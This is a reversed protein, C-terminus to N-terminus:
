YGIAFWGIEFTWTQGSGVCDRGTITVKSKDTNGKCLVGNVVINEVGTASNTTINRTANAMVFFCKNPFTIPYSIERTIAGGSPIDLSTVGWQMIIGSPLKLYSNQQKTGNGTVMNWVNKEADSILRHTSDQTYSALKNKDIWGTWTGNNLTNEYTTNRNYSRAIIKKYTASHVDIDYYAWENNNGFPNNTCGVGAYKGSKTIALVDQGSIRIRDYLCEQSNYKFSFANRGEWLAIDQLYFNTAGSSVICFGKDWNNINTDFTIVVDEWTNETKITYTKMQANSLAVKIVTGKIGYIRFSATYANKFDKVTSARNYIIYQKIGAEGTTSTIRVSKGSYASDSAATIATTNSNYVNWPFGSGINGSLFGSDLLLNEGSYERVKLDEVDAYLQSSTPYKKATDEINKITQQGKINASNIADVMSNVNTSVQKGDVVSQKIKIDLPFSTTQKNANYLKNTNITIQMHATGASNTCNRPLYIMAGSKSMTKGISSNGTVTGNANAYNVIITDEGDVLNLPQGNSYLKINFCVDDAQNVEIFNYNKKKIDLDLSIINWM